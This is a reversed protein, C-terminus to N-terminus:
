RQTLDEEWTLACDMQEDHRENEGYKGKYEDGFEDRPDSFRNEHMKYMKERQMNSKPSRIGETGEPM